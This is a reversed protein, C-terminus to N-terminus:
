RAYYVTVDKEPFLWLQRLDRNREYIYRDADFGLDIVDAISVFVSGGEEEEFYIGAEDMAKRFIDTIDLDLVWEPVMDLDELDLAEMFRMWIRDQIDGYNRLLFDDEEESQLAYLRDDDLCCCDELSELDLLFSELEDTDAEQLDKDTVGTWVTGIAGHRFRVFDYADQLYDANARAAFSGSHDSYSAEDIIYFDAGHGPHTRLCKKVLEIAATKERMEEEYLEAM